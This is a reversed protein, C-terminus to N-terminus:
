NAEERARECQGEFVGEEPAEIVKSLVGRSGKEPVWSKRSGRRRCSVEEVGCLCCFVYAQLM